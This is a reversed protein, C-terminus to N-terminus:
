RPARAEPRDPTPHDQAPPAEAEDAEPDMRHEWHSIRDYDERRFVWVPDRGIVLYRVVAQEPPDAFTLRVAFGRPDGEAGIPGLIEYDTPPRDPRRDSDSVEVRTGMATAPGAPRGAKWAALSADLAARALGPSPTFADGPSAAGPGGCGAGVLALVAGVRRFAAPAALRGTTADRPGIM